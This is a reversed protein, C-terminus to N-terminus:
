DFSSYITPSKRIFYSHLMETSYCMNVLVYEEVVYEVNM